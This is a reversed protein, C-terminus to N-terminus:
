CPDICALGTNIASPITVIVPAPPPPTKTVTASTGDTGRCARDAAAQASVVAADAAADATIAAQLKTNGVNAAAKAVNLASVLDQLSPGTAPPVPLVFNDVLKQAAVVAADLPTQDAKLKDVDLQTTVAKQQAVTLAQLATSCTPVVPSQAAAIPAFTLSAAILLGAVLGLKKM